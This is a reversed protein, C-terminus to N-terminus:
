RYDVYTTERDKILLIDKGANHAESFFKRNSVAHVIQDTVSGGHRVALEELVEVLESSLVFTVSKSKKKM